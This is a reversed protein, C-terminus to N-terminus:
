RRSVPQALDRDERPTLDMVAGFLDPPVDAWLSRRTKITARSIRFRGTPEDLDGWRLNELESV